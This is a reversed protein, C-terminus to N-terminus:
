SLFLATLKTQVSKPSGGILTIVYDDYQLKTKANCM